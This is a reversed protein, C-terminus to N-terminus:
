KTFDSKVFNNEIVYLILKTDLAVEVQLNQVHLNWLISFLFIDSTPMNGMCM